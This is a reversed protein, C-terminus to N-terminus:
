AIVTGSVEREYVDGKSSSSPGQEAQWTPTWGDIAADYRGGSNLPAGGDVGGWVIMEAGTWVASQVARPLPVSATPVWSDLAPDYRGGVDANPPWGSTGGWIIMEAGTWVAHHLGRGTPHGGASSTPTWEDNVPDYRGGTDLYSEAGVTHTGGWVIMRSGTWVASHDYRGTPVNAGTSTPTWTDSARDYRGGTNLPGSNGFGGWVIFETGTWVASDYQRVEPFFDHRTPSWTDNTCDDGTVAPLTFSGEALDIAIAIMGRASAWWADFPLKPWTATAIVIEDARQALLADVVFADPTERLSGLAGISTPRVSVNEDSKTIVERYDAGLLRMCAVDTCTSLAAAAKQRLAEHFRGDGSYWSRTLRDALAQRGLTEAILRPDRGLADFLENLLQPNRTGQAMRDLEAQLQKDAIPRQWLTALATSKALYDDVKARIASDPMVADLPPKSTTNEAPWIRHHWYM